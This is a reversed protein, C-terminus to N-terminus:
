IRQNRFNGANIKLRKRIVLLQMKAQLKGKIGGKDALVKSSLEKVAKQAAIELGLVERIQEEVMDIEVMYIYIYIYGGGVKM